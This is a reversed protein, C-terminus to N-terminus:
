LEDAPGLDPSSRTQHLFPIMVQKPKDPISVYLEMEDLDIRAQNQKLFDRGLRLKYKSNPDKDVVLFQPSSLTAELSGMRLWLAGMPIYKSDGMDEYLVKLYRDKMVADKSITSAHLSPDLVTDLPNVVATDLASPNRNYLSTAVIFGCPVHLDRITDLFQSSGMAAKVQQSTGFTQKWEPPLISNFWSGVAAPLDTGAVTPHAYGVYCALVVAVLGILSAM